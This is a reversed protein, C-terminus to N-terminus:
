LSFPFFQYCTGSVHRVGLRVPRSVTPRLIVQVQVQVQCPNSNKTHLRTSCRRRLGALRLLHHFLFGIASSLVPGGMNRFYIFVLVQGELNLSRRFQSLLFHDHPGRSEFGFIIASAIVLLFQLSCDREGTLCHASLPGQHTQCPFLRVLRGDTIVNVNVAVRTTWHNLNVTEFPDL